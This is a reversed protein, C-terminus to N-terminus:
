PLEERLNPGSFERGGVTVVCDRWEASAQFLASYRICNQKSPTTITHTRGTDTATARIQYDPM